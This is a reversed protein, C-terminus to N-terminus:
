LKDGRHRSGAPSLYRGMGDKNKAYIKAANRSRCLAIWYEDYPIKLMFDEYYPPGVSQFAM